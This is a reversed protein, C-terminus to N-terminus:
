STARQASRATYLIKTRPVRGRCSSISDGHNRCGSIISPLFIMARTGMRFRGRDNSERTISCPSSGVLVVVQHAVVLATCTHSAMLRSKTINRDHSTTGAVRNFSQTNHPEIHTWVRGNSRASLRILMNTMSLLMVRTYTRVVVPRSHMFENRNRYVLISLRRPM